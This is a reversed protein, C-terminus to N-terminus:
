FTIYRKYHPKLFKRLIHAIEVFLWGCESICLQTYECGAGENIAKQIFDKLSLTYDKGWEYANKLQKYNILSFLLGSYLNNQMFSKYYKNFEIIEDYYPGSSQTDQGPHVRYRLLKRDQFIIAGDNEKMSDIVFPKDGVKGFKKYDKMNQKSIFDKLNQTKYITPSYAYKQMYCLYEAFITQKQCYCFRKSAKKWNDNTPNSSAKYATSVISTNPYKNIAQIAYNIYEPHLIDDDHFLMVFDKKALSIADLFNQLQTVNVDKRNYHINPYHEQLIKVVENTGDNSGNDMVTIDVEGITQNLISKISDQLFDKRNYTLIFVEINNKTYTNIDTNKLM